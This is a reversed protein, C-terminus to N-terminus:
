TKGGLLFLEQGSCKYNVTHIYIDNPQKHMYISCYGTNSPGDTNM